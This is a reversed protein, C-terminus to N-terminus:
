CRPDQSGVFTFHPSFTAVGSHLPPPFRSIGSFFGGVLPMTRCSEWKRFEPLSGAPFYIRNAKTPLSCALRGAATGTDTTCPRVNHQLVDPSPRLCSLFYPVVVETPRFSSKCNGSLGVFCGRCRRFNKMLWDPALDGRCFRLGSMSRILNSAMRPNASLWAVSALLFSDPYQLCQVLKPSPFPRATVDHRVTPVLQDRCITFGAHSRPQYLVPFVPAFDSTRSNGDQVHFSRGGYRYVILTHSLTAMDVVWSDVSEVSFVMFRVCSERAHMRLLDPGRCKHVGCYLAQTAAVQRAPPAACVTMLTAHTLTRRPVQTKWCCTTAHEATSTKLASSPSALCTPPIMSICPRYLRNGSAFIRSRGRWSDFGTRRPPLRATARREDKREVCCWTETLSQTTILNSFWARTLRPSVGVVVMGGGRKKDKKDEIGVGESELRVDFSSTDPSHDGIIYMNRRRKGNPDELSWSGIEVSRGNNNNRRGGTRRWRRVTYRRGRRPGNLAQKRKRGAKPDSDFYSHPDHLGVARAKLVADSALLIASLRKGILPQLSAGWLLKPPQTTLRSAEWYPSGPEIGPRTLGPGECAPSTDSSAGPRHTKEPTIGNGRGKTGATAPFGQQHPPTLKRTARSHIDGGKWEFGEVEVRM